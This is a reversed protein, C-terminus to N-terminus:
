RKSNNDGDHKADVYFPTRGHEPAVDLSNNTMGVSYIKGM